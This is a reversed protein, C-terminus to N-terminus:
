KKGILTVTSWVQIGEGQGFNTLKDGSTFAIGINEKKINLLNALSETIKERHKELRPQGAEVMIAVNNIKFSKKQIKKLAAKLYERSDTIGQKCLPGSYADFSGLGMATNLANCLSHIIMDGDSDAEIKITKDILIGALILPKQNKNELDYAKIRHSDQGIGIRFIM